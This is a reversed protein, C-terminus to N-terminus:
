ITGLQVVWSVQTHLLIKTLRITGVFESNEDACAEDSAGAEKTLSLLKSIVDWKGCM